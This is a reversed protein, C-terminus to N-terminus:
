TGAASPLTLALRAAPVPAAGGPAGARLPASGPLWGTRMTVTARFAQTEVAKGVPLM